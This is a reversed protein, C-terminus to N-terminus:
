GMFIVLGRMSPVGVACTCVHSRAVALRRLSVGYHRREKGKAGKKAEVGDRGLSDVRHSAVKQFM